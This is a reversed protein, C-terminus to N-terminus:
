RKPRAPVPVDAAEPPTAERLAQEARRLRGWLVVVCALLATSLLVAVAVMTRLAFLSAHTVTLPGLRALEHEAARPHPPVPLM